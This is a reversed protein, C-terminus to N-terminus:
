SSEPDPTAPPRYRLFPVWRGLKRLGGHEDIWRAYEVYTPDESLHREEARSRLFYLLNVGLLAISHQIAVTWSEHSLFPVSLLWWSVNKFLYSPHKTWRYPGNTIIGRHTLNSFRTGFSFNSWAWGLKSVIILSGWLYVMGSTGGMWDHWSEGDSYAFFRDALTGWFPKYLAITVLWGYALPNPTRIHSDFLRLTLSYGIAVFALDVALAFSAAYVVLLPFNELAHSLKIEAFGVISGGLYTTMLPLYFGKITWGLAHHRLTTWDLRSWRGLLFRGATWFEDEPREMKRDISWFYPVSGVVVVPLVMRMLDWFPDYFERHYEPAVWYVLAITALTGWFGLLKTAVRRLDTPNAPRGFLLGTSERRHMGRVFLDLLIMPVATGAMCLLTRLAIGMPLPDTRSPELFHATTLFGIVGVLCVTQNTVSEPRTPADMAM